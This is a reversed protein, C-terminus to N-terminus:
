SINVGDYTTVDKQGTSELWCIVVFGLDSKGAGIGIVKNNFYDTLNLSLGPFDGLWEGDMYIRIISREHVVDYVDRFKM